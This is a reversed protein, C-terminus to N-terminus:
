INENLLRKIEYLVEWNENKIDTEWIYFLKYGKQTALIRKEADRTQKYRQRENLPRKKGGYIAPNGHWYDGHVELLVNDSIIFDFQGVKQIIKNCKYPINMKILQEETLREPITKKHKKNRLADIARQSILDRNEGAYKKAKESLLQKAEETHTKGYFGNKEGARGCKESLIARTNDSHTKGYFPNNEGVYRGKMLQSHSKKCDDNHSKGYFPNKVGIRQCSFCEYQERHLLNHNLNVNFYDKCTVCMCELDPLDRQKVSGFSTIWVVEKGQKEKSVLFEDTGKIRIKHNIYM